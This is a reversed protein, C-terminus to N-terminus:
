VPLKKKTSYIYKLSLGGVICCWSFLLLLGPSEQPAGSRMAEILGVLVPMLLMGYRCAGRFGDARIWHNRRLAPLAEFRLVRKEQNQKEALAEKRAQALRPLERNLMRGAKSREDFNGDKRRRTRAILPELKKRDREVRVYRAEAKQLDRQCDTQQREEEPTRNFDVTTKAKGRLRFNIEALLWLFLIFWIFGTM